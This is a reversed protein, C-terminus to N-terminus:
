PPRKRTLNFDFTSNFRRNIADNELPFFSPNYPHLFPPPLFYRIFPLLFFSSISLFCSAFLCALLSTLSPLFSRPLLFFHLSLAVVVSSPPSSNPLDTLPVYKWIFVSFPSKLLVKLIMDIIKKAKSCQEETGRIHVQDDRINLEKVGTQEKIDKIRWGKKGIILGAKGEPIPMVEEQYEANVAKDYWSPEGDSRQRRPDYKGHKSDRSM